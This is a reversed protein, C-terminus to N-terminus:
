AVLLALSARTTPAPLMTAPPGPSRAVGSPRAFAVQLLGVSSRPGRRM